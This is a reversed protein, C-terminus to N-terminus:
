IPILSLDRTIRRCASIGDEGPMMVDLLVADIREREMVADMERTNAASQVRYGRAGLSQTLLTRIERDDDVVLIAAAEETVPVVGSTGAYQEQSMM